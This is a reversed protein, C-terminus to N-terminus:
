LKPGVFSLLTSKEPRSPIWAYRFLDVHVEGAHVSAVNKCACAKHRLPEELYIGDFRRGIASFDVTVSSEVSLGLVPLIQTLVVIAQGLCFSLKVSMGPAM